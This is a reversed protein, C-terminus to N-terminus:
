GVFRQVPVNIELGKQLEAHYLREGEGCDEQDNIQDKFYFSIM